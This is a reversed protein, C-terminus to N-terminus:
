WSYNGRDRGGAGWTRPPGLVSGRDPGGKIRVRAKKKRKKGGGTECNKWLPVEGSDVDGGGKKRV